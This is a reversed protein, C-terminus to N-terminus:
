PHFPTDTFACRPPPACAPRPPRERRFSARACLLRLSKIPPTPSTILKCIAPMLATQHGGVVDLEELSALPLADGLLAFRDRTEVAAHSGLKTVHLEVKRLRSARLADLYRAMMGDSAAAYEVAEEFFPEGPKAGMHFNLLQPLYAIGVRARLTADVADERAKEFHARLMHQAQPESASAGRVSAELVAHALGPPFATEREAKKKGFAAQSKPMVREDLAVIGDTLGV